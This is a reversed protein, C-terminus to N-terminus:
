GKVWALVGSAPIDLLQFIDSGDPKMVYLGTSDEFAIFRGDPAFTGFLGVRSIQTLREPQGGATSVRWWDSPINHARATQIGLLQELISRKSAPEETVASFIVQRGDPSFFHSDVIPFADSSLLAAANSGNVDALSLTTALSAPDFALYALKLGDPSVSPWLGDEILVEPQGAPYALREITYETVFSNDGRYVLHSYYISNGDPSWVPTFYAENGDVPQMLPLPSGAGDLPMVYLGPSTLPTQGAAPPPIYTMVIHTGDPSVAGDSIWSQDPAVFLTTQAGSALDLQVLQQEDRSFALFVLQGSLNLNVWPLTIASGL